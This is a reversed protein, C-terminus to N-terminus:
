KETGSTCYRERFGRSPILTLRRRQEEWHPERRCRRSRVVHPQLDRPRYECLLRTAILVKAGVQFKSGKRCKIERRRTECADAPSKRIIDECFIELVPYNPVCNSASHYMPVLKIGFCHLVKQMVASVFQVGNDIIVKRSVEYHMFVEAILLKACQIAAAESLAYLKTCRSATDEVVFIWRNGVTTLPLSGLQLQQLKLWDM